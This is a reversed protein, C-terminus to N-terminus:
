EGTKPAPPSDKRPGIRFAAPRGGRVRGLISGVIALGPVGEARGIGFFGRQFFQLLPDVALQDVLEVQGLHALQFALDEAAFDAQDDLVEAVAFVRQQVAVLALLQDLSTSSSVNPRPGSSSSSFSGVILSMRMLPGLFM